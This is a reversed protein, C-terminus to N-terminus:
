DNGRLRFEFAPRGFRWDRGAAFDLRMDFERASCRLDTRPRITVPGTVYEEGMARFRRTITLTADDLARSDPEFGTLQGVREGMILPGGELYPQRTDHQRGTEHKYLVGSPDAMLPVGLDAVDAAGIRDLTGHTWHGERYSYTVYADCEQAGSSARPYLWTVEGHLTNHYGSVLSVQATDLDGYVHAYVPCDLPRVDGSYLWFGDPGFWYTDSDVNIAAGSSALGAGDAMKRPAYGSRGLYEALWVDTDSFVLVGSTTAIGAVLQGRTPVRIDGARNTATPTWDTNDEVDCWKLLRPDSDAGIAMLIREGTVVVARATPANQIPAAPAPTPTPVWEMIRGDSPIVGVLNQGWLGFTWRDAAQVSAVERPTGYTGEGYAGEGYGGERSAREGGVSLGAPTVDSLTGDRTAVYLHSNSGIGVWAIGSDDTWGIIERAKGPVTGATWRVWGGVPRIDGSRFRVLDGGIWQGESQRATARTFFGPPMDVNLRPM